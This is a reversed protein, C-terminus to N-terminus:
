EKDFLSSFEAGSLSDQQMSTYTGHQHLESAITRLHGLVARMIDGALSVRAVGLQELEPLTPAPPGALINIPGNIAKVLEATVSRDLRGIPYVCDAGAQLYANARRVAHQLRDGPEGIGLLFVDTRANIVLPIDLHRLAQILEVQAAMDVLQGPAHPLSDEINIGVAGAEIVQQVTHLIEEPTDGYGAEIDATVPLDVVRTIRAIAAIMMERSIQQGDGYGLAAAIGTSATAIAPFGAQEVIRASAADWVNPLVLLQPDHHLQRLRQARERQIKLDISVM